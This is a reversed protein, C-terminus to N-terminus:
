MFFYLYYIIYFSHFSLKYKFLSIKDEVLSILLAKTCKKVSEGFPRSCFIGKEFKVNVFTLFKLLEIYMYQQKGLFKM